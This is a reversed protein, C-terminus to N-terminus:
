LELNQALHFKVQHLDKQSLLGIKKQILRIDITFAKQRVISPVQLGCSAMDHILHDGFWTSNKASTIMLMCVYGTKKQFSEKSIVVAPRKKTKLSDTFPFPVVVISYPKYTM